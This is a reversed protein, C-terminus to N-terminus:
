RKEELSEHVRTNKLADFSKKVTAFYKTENEEITKIEDLENIPPFQGDGSKTSNFKFQFTPTIYKCSGLKNSNRYIFTILSKMKIPM